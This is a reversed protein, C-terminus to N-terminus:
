FAFCRDNTLVLQLFILLVYLFNTVEVMKRETRGDVFESINYHSQFRGFTDVV